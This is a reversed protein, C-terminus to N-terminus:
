AECAAIKLPPEGDFSPFDAEPALCTVACLPRGAKTACRQLSEIWADRRVSAVHNTCLITGGRSTALLAPKFLSAYDRAVDVAGFPGKSWAPPDLVVLDFKRPELRFYGRASGRGKVPLGALQRLVPYADEAVFRAREPDLDNLRLNRAGIALHAASFDVNWVSEAGTAAACVGASCTYAFVNLVARGRAHARVFRRGARLDLFLWPDRGRHRARVLYRVGLERCTFEALASERPRHWREFGTSETSAAPEAFDAPEAREHAGEGRHNYVFELEFGLRSRLEAELADIARSELPARFTQALVLPGFRDITLGPCGEAVGHFLRYADTEEAHLREALERRRELAREVLLTLEMALGYRLVRASRARMSVSDPMSTSPMEIPPSSVHMSEGPSLTANSM